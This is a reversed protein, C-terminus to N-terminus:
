EAPWSEDISEYAIVYIEEIMEFSGSDFDSYRIERITANKFTWRRTEVGDDVAILSLDRKPSDGVAEVTERHWTNFGNNPDRQVMKSIEITPPTHHGDGDRRLLVFGGVRFVGDVAQGDLELSFENAILSDLAVNSM